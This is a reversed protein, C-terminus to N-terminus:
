RQNSSNGYEALIENFMKLFKLQLEPNDRAILKGKGYSEAINRDFPIEMLLPINNTQLFSNTDSVANGSRNIIVGFPISVQKL